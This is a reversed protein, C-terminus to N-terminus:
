LWRRTMWWASRRQTSPGAPEADGRRVLADGLAQHMIALASPTRGAYHGAVVAAELTQVAASVAEEGLLDRSRDELATALKEFARNLEPFLDRMEELREYWAAAEAWAEREYARRALGAISATRMGRSTSPKDKASQLEADPDAPRQALEQVTHEALTILDEGLRGLQERLEIGDVEDAIVRLGYRLQTIDERNVDRSVRAEITRRGEEVDGRLLQCLGVSLEIDEAGIGTARRWREYADLAEDPLGLAFQADGVSQEWNTEATDPQALIEAFFRRSAERDGLMRHIRGALHRIWPRGVNTQLSLEVLSLAEEDAGLGASVSARGALLWANYIRQQAEELTVLQAEFKELAALASDYDGTNICFIIREELVGLDDPAIELAIEIVARACANLKLLRYTRGLTTWLFSNQHDKLLGREIFAAGAWLLDARRQPQHPIRAENILARSGYAWAEIQNPFADAGQDWVQAARELMAAKQDLISPTNEQTTNDAPAAILSVAQNELADALFWSARPNQSHTVVPDLHHVAEAWEGRSYYALGADFHVEIAAQLDGVTELSQALLARVPAEPGRPLGEGLGLELARRCEAIAQPFDALAWFLTARAYHARGDEERGRWAPEAVCARIVEPDFQRFRQQWGGVSDLGEQEELQALLRRLQLDEDTPNRNLAKDIIRQAEEGRHLALLAQARIRVVDLDRPVLKAAEKSAALAEEAAGSALLVAGRVQLMQGRLNDDEPLQDPLSALALEFSGAGLLAKARETAIEAATRDDGKDVAQRHAAELAAAADEHRGLRELVRGYLQLATPNDTELKAATSLLPEAAAPEDIELLAGGVLVGTEVRVRTPLTPTALLASWRANSLLPRHAALRANPILTGAQRVVEEAETPGADLLAKLSSDLAGDADGVAARAAALLRGIDAVRPTVGVECQAQELAAVAEAHRGHEILARGLEFYLTRLVHQPSQAMTTGDEAVTRVAVTRM